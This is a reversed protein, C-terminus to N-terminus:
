PLTQQIREAIIDPVAMPKVTDSSVCAVKVEAACLLEGARRVEQVFFLSARGLHSVHLSVILADDLKAPLHYDVQIRRVVFQTGQQQLEHQGFGLGRLWDSRCREMFKLYNAHYVVGGADTDEFYVRCTIAFPTM